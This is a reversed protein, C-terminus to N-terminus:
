INLKKPNIYTFFLAIDQEYHESPEMCHASTHKQVYQHTQAMFSSFTKNPEPERLQPHLSQFPTLVLNTFYKNDRFLIFVLNTDCCEQINDKIISKFFIVVHNNIFIINNTSIPAM